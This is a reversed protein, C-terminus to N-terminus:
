LKVGEDEEEDEPEANARIEASRVVMEHGGKVIGQVVEHLYERVSDLHAYQQRMQERAEEFATEGQPYYDRPNFEIQDMAEEAARVAKLANKYGRMLMDKGTGNTHVSPLRVGGTEKAQGCRLSHLADKGMKRATDADEDWYGFESATNWEKLINEMFWGDETIGDNALTRAADIAVRNIEWAYGEETELIDEFADLVAELAETAEKGGQSANSMIGANITLTRAIRDFHFSTKLHERDETNPITYLFGEAYDGKEAREAIRAPEIINREYEEKGLGIIHSSLDMWEDDSVGLTDGTDEEWEEIAKNLKETLSDAFGKFADLEEDTYRTLNHLSMKKVDMLKSRAKWNVEEVFNWFEELSTAKNQM